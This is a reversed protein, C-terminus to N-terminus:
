FTGLVLSTVRCDKQDTPNEHVHWKGLTSDEGTIQVVPFVSGDEDIFLLKVSPTPEVNLMANNVENRISDRKNESLGKKRIGITQGKKTKHPEIGLIMQGFSNNAFACLHKSLDKYDSKFDLGDTEIKRIEVLKNLIDINWDSMETPVDVINTDKDEM